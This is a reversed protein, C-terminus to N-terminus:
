SLLFSLFLFASIRIIRIYTLLSAVYLLINYTVAYSVDNSPELEDSDRNLRNRPNDLALFGRM